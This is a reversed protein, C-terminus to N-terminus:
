TMSEKEKLGQQIMQSVTREMASVRRGILRAVNNMLKYGIDSHEECITRIENQEIAILESDEMVHATLHYKFPHTLASWGFAEGKSIHEICVDTKVNQYTVQCCLDVAGVKLLFLFEAADGITFLTSGKDIRRVGCVEAIQELDEQGMGDFISFKELLERM